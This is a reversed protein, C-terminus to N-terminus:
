EKMDENTKTENLNVKNIRDLRSDAWEYAFAGVLVLVLVLELVLAIVWPLNKRKKQKPEEVVIGTRGSYDENYSRRSRADVNQKPKGSPATRRAPQSGSRSAGQKGSGGNSRNRSNRNQPSGNRSQSNRSQSNRSQSGGNKSQGGTRGSSNRNRDRNSASGTSGQRRERNNDSAM